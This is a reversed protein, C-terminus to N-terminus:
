PTLRPSVLLRYLPSYRRRRPAFSRAGPPAPAVFHGRRPGGSALADARLGLPAVFCQALLARGAPNRGSSSGRTKPRRINLACCVRCPSIFPPVLRARGRALVWPIGGARRGGGGGPRSPHPVGDRPRAARAASCDRRVGHPQASCPGGPRPEHFGVEMLDSGAPPTCPALFRRSSPSPPIRVGICIRVRIGIRRRIRIRIAAATASATAIAAGSLPHPLALLIRFAMRAGTAFGQM